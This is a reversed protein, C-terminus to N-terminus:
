RHTVQAKFDRWNAEDDWGPPAGPERSGNASPTVWPVDPELAADVKAQHADDGHERIM